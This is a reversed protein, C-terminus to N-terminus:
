KKKFPFLELENVSVHGPAEPTGVSAAPAQSIWLTVFRHPQKAAAVIAASGHGLKIRVHRKKEVFSPTLAVWAPDTISTPLTAASSGYIQITMGPTDTTLAVAALKRATNLDIVIGEALKPAVSPEVLATWATTTDGDIALSPDGFNSAAYNYPNYTAAANTDLLLAEPHAEGVVEESAKKPTTTSETKTGSGAPTPTTTAKPTPTVTPTLPIKTPKPLPTPKITTPTGIKATATATPAPTVPTTPTAAPPTAQAITTAAAPASSSKNLAAYAATAAGAVLVVLATAIVAASRWSPTRSSLSGPAGAGCQLCWDQGAALPTGCNACNHALSSPGDASPTPDSPDRNSGATQQEASEAPPDAVATSM